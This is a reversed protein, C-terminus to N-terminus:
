EPHDTINEHFQITTMDVTTGEDKTPTPSKQCFSIKIKALRGKWVTTNEHFQITTTDVTTGEDKTSTPSKQCFLIKINM